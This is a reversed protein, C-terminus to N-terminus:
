KPGFEPRLKRIKPSAGTERAFQGQTTWEVSKM